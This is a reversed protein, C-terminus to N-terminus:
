QSNPMMLDLMWGSCHLEEVKHYHAHIAEVVPRPWWAAVGLQQNDNSNIIIAAYRKEAIPKTLESFDSGKAAWVNLFTACDIIVPTSKTLYNIYLDDTLVPKGELGIDKLYEANKQAYPLLQGRYQGEQCVFPFSCASCLLLIIGCVAPLRSLCIALFWSLALLAAIMHNSSSAPIGMSYFFLGTSILALLLPLKQLGELKKVALVGLPVLLLAFSLKIWDAGISGLNGLLVTSSSKVSSLFTLNQVYGGTLLQMFGTFILISLIWGALLAFAIKKQGESLLYAVIALLFVIAQQKIEICVAGLLFVSLYSRLTSQKEPNLWLLVFQHLLLASFFIVAIDPRVEYGRNSVCDFSFLFVLSTLIVPLSIKLKRYIDVLLAALGATFLMSTIRLPFYNAGFLKAFLSIFVLYLPPYITTIWPEKQLGDAPYINQGRSLADAAWLMPSEFDLSYPSSLASSWNWLYIFATAAAAIISLVLFIKNQVKDIKQLNM